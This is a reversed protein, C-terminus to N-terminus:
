FEFNFVAVTQSYLTCPVSFQDPHDLTLWFGGFAITCHSLLQQFVATLTWLWTHKVGVHSLPQQTLFFSKIWVHFRLAPSFNAASWLSLTFVKQLFVRHDCSVSMSNNPWLSCCYTQLLPPSAKWGLSVVGVTLCPAPLIVSHPQEATLPDAARFFSFPIM